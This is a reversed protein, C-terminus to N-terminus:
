TITFESQQGYALHPVGSSDPFLCVIAYSGPELEILVLQGEEGPLLSLQGAIAIGEPFGDTSPRLLQEVTAGSELRVVLLEHAEDGENVADFVIDSGEITSEGLRIQYEDLTVSLTTAGPPATAELPAIGHARWFGQTSDISTGDTPGLDRYLFTWEEFLLQHGYVLQVEASVTSLGNFRVNDVDIIRTEIVPAGTVIARFEEPSLREGGGFMDGLFEATTLSTIGNVDSASLCAALSKAIAAVQEAILDGAPVSEATQPSAVAEPTAVAQPSSAASPFEPASVDAPAVCGQAVPTAQQASVQELGFGSALIALAIVIGRKM